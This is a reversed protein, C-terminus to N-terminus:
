IHVNTHRGPTQRRQCAAADRRVGPESRAKKCCSSSSSWGSARNAECLMVRVHPASGTEGLMPRSMPYLDPRTPIGKAEEAVEWSEGPVRGCDRSLPPYYFRIRHAAPRTTQQGVDYDLRGTPEDWYCGYCCFLWRLTDCSGDTNPWTYHFSM